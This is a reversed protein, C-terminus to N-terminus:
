RIDAIHFQQHRKCSELGMVIKDKETLNSIIKGSIEESKLFIKEWKPNWDSRAPM